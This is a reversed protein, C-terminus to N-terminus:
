EVVVANVAMRTVVRPAVGTSEDSLWHTAGTVHWLWQQERHYTVLTDGRSPVPGSVEMEKPGDYVLESASADLRLRYTSM